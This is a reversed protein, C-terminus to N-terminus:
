LLHCARRPGAGGRTWGALAIRRRQNSLTQLLSGECLSGQAERLARPRGEGRAALCRCAAHKIARSAHAFIGLESSCVDSGWDSIRVEYATKQKFFVVDYVCITILLFYM